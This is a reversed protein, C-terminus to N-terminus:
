SRSAQVSFVRTKAVEVNKSDKVIIKKHLQKDIERLVNLGGQSKMKSMFDIKNKMKKLLAQHDKYEKGHYFTGKGKPTCSDSKTQEYIKRALKLNEEQKKKSKKTRTDKIVSIKALDYELSSIYNITLNVTGDQSFKLDHNRLNLWLTKTSKAIARRVESARQM